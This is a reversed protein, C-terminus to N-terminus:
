LVQDIEIAFNSYGTVNDETSLNFPKKKGPEIDPVAGVAIGLMNGDDGYFTAKLVVTHKISDNNTVDGYVEWIGGEGKNNTTESVVIKSETKIQETTKIEDVQEDIVIDGDSVKNQITSNPAVENLSSKSNKVSIMVVSFVIVIVSIGAVIILFKKM